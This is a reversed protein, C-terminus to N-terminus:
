PSQTEATLDSRALLTRGALLDRQHFSPDARTRTFRGPNGPSELGQSSPAMPLRLLYGGSTRSRATLSTNSCRPADQAHAICAVWHADPGLGEGFASAFAESDDRNRPAKCANQPRHPAVARHVVRLHNANRAGGPSGSLGLCGVYARLGDGASGGLDPEKTAPLSSDSRCARLSVHLWRSFVCEV